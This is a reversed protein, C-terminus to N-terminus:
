LTGDTSLSKQALAIVIDHHDRLPFVWANLMTRLVPRPRHLGLAELIPTLWGGLYAFEYFETFDKFHLEPRFTECARIAFGHDPLSQRVEDENAPNCVFDGLDFSKGKAVLKLIKSRAIKHLAPFGAKTGGVFSWYGGPKLRTWIKPALLKLPVFGTLFHTCVLDFSVDGFHADFNAADDLASVLDPLRLQAIDMMKQSLDLGFPQIDFPLIGRLRELFAGTGVGLDLVRFPAPQVRKLGLHQIQRIARELSDGVVSQPDEEYHSSIVEDYQRQIVETQM